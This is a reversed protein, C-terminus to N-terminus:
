RKTRPMAAFLTATWRSRPRSAPQVKGGNTYHITMVYQRKPLLEHGCRAAAYARDDALGAIIEPGAPVEGPLFAWLANAIAMADSGGRAAAIRIRITGDRNADEGEFVYIVPRNKGADRVPDVTKPPAGEVEIRLLRKGPQGYVGECLGVVVTMRRGPTVRLLYDIPGNTSVAVDGFASDCPVDPKAWHYLIRQAKPPDWGTVLREGGVRQLLPEWLAKDQPPIVAWTEEEIRVDGAQKITKLIPVRASYLEQKIWASGGAVDHQVFVDFRRVGASDNAWDTLFQGEKGLVVKDPDDPLCIATQWWPVAYRFDVRQAPLPGAAVPLLGGVTLGAALAVIGFHKAGNM